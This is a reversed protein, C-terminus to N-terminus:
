SCSERERVHSERLKKVSMYRKTSIISERERIDSESSERVLMDRVFMVKMVFMCESSERV